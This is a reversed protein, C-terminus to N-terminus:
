EVKHNAIKLVAQTIGNKLTGVVVIRTKKRCKATFLFCFCVFLIFIEEEANPKNTDYNDIQIQHAFMSKSNDLSIAKYFINKQM